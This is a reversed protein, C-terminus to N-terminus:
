CTLFIKKPINIQVISYFLSVKLWVILSENLANILSRRCRGEFGLTKFPNQQQQIFTM